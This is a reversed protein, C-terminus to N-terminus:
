RGNNKYIVTKRILYNYIFVVGTAVIKALMQFIALKEVMVYMLLMNALWGILSAVYVQFIEKALSGSKRGSFMLFRGFAWNAFTSVFMAITTAVLYDISLRETLLWFLIWEVLTAGLGVVFYIALGKIDLRRLIDKM